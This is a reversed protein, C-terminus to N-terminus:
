SYSLEYNYSQTFCSGSLTSSLELPIKKRQKKKGCTLLNFFLIGQDEDAILTAIVEGPQWSIKILTWNPM